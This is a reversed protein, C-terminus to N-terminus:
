LVGYTHLLELNALRRRELEDLVKQRIEPNEAFSHASQLLEERCRRNCGEIYKIKEPPYLEPHQLFESQQKEEAKRIREEADSVPNDLLYCIVSDSYGRRLPIPSFGLHLSRM